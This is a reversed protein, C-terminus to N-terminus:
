IERFIDQEVCPRYMKGWGFRWHGLDDKGAVRMDVVCYDTQVMRSPPNQNAAMFILALITLTLILCRIM